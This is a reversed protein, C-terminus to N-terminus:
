LFPSELNISCPLNFGHGKVNKATVWIRIRTPRTLAGRSVRDLNFGWTTDVKRIINAAGNCDANITGYWLSKYLGRKTRRGSPKWRDPKEGYTPLIDRNLFSAKSTYSEETEIFNIGHKKCLQRIREKLRFTPIQVFTQNNRRGMNSEQRQGVNWGFVINGIRNKLCYNIVIRAAKNVADRMQRNRKETITALKKSWFGQAKGKKLEAVQKNYWQNVSKVHRGDIIFSNGDFSNDVCTLWNTVGPDIGLVWKENMKRQRVPQQEYVWEAYFERNRPLIRLEKISSFDLNSPAPITFSDIGFWAKVTQGLPIRIGQGVLKLAQKPYTVVTLGNKRYSPIRPKQNLEGARNKKELEYFSKFSEAVSLLVQQACQSYLSQYNRNNKLENILDFKKLYRREKFWVQRGYYIGCNTLRQAQNCLYELIPHVLLSRNLLVQQCAYDKLM